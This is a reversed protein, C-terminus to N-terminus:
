RGRELPDVAQDAALDDGLRDDGVQGAEDEGEGDVEVVGAVERLQMLEDLRDLSGARRDVDDLEVRGLVHPQGALTASVPHIVLAALAVDLPGTGVDDVELRPGAEVGVGCPVALLQQRTVTVQAQVVLEPQRPESPRRTSRWWPSGLTTWRTHILRHIYNCM